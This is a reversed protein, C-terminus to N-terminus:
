IDFQATTTPKSGLLKVVPDLSPQDKLHLLFQAIEEVVESPFVMGAIDRYKSMLAEDSVPNQPAGLPFEVRETYSHGDRTIVTVFPEDEDKQSKDIEFEVLDMAQRIRPDHRNTRTYATLNAGGFVLRAAIGYAISMQAAPMPDLKRGGCMGHVFPNIRIHIKEIDAPSLQHADMIINVADISSHSSRCSAHPKISVRGLKWNKGLDRLWADPDQTTPAFTKSFGGWVQEFAMKPGTFGERALLCALLGGHAANGVHLRKNQAGDHVFSWQGAAFSTAIGLAAQMKEVDLGLLRGVAAAAGFIGCTGTSHWGAGNHPEYAGCSELARRALDYGLTVAVIFEKGDIPRDCLSLAAFAAPVVVAGSHDCGNTDDLEFTHSSVGNSLAANRASVKIGKGWLPVNGNAEGCIAFVKNLLRTEPSVAGAIGAGVSDLIHRQAKIVLEEPIDEFKTWVVFRALQESILQTNESQMFLGM